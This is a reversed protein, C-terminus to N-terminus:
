WRVNKDTTIWATNTLEPNLNLIYVNKYKLNEM